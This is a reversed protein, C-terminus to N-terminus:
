RPRMLDVYDALIRAAEIQLPDPEDDGPEDDGPEDDGPEPGEEVPEGDEAGNADEDEDLSELPEQGTAARYANEIALLRAEHKEQEAVRVSEDISLVEEQGLEEFYGLREADHKLEPDASARQEHRRRLEPLLALMEKRGATAGLGPGDPDLHVAPRIEDWPLAEDMSGEGFQEEDIGDPFRLDPEVGRLQTSAGTVRYFKQQTLFLDGSSVPLIGQVTGKGFTREGVLIARGYDQMAGAFIESASASSRDVLVLLPGDYIADLHARLVDAPEDRDVGQVQVIPRQGLFLGGLETAEVLSGGGNRRLDIVVGEADEKQLKVLEKAVDRTTSRYDPDRRRYAEFDMYFDPLAIVGFRREPADGDDAPTKITVIRSKAAREELKVAERVM